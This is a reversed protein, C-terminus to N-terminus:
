GSCYSKQMVFRSRATLISMQQLRILMPDTSGNRVYKEILVVDDNNVTGNHDADGYLIDSSAAPPTDNEAAFTNVPLMPLTQMCALLSAVFFSM